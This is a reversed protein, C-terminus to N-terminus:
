GGGRRRRGGQEAGAAGQAAKGAQGSPCVFCCCCRSCCCCCCDRDPVCFVGLEGCLVCISAAVPASLSLGHQSGRSGATQQKAPSTATTHRCIWKAGRACAAAGSAHGSSASVGLLETCGSGASLDLLSGESQAHGLSWQHGQEEADQGDTSPPCFLCLLSM